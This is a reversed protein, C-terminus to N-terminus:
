RALAFLWAAATTAIALLAGVAQLEKRQRLSPRIFELLRGLVMGFVFGGFHVVVDSAPNSGTLVFLMIGASLTAVLPKWGPQHRVAELGGSITLVGLAALVMGSAGLSQYGAGYIMLAAGNALAAACWPAFLGLGAGYRAMCLGVLLTGTVLNSALHGVDHHLTIATFLRWWEGQRVSQALVGAETMRSGPLTTLFHIFILFAAWGVCAWNFSLHVVPLENRLGWGRNEVHYLKLVRLARGCQVADVELAVVESVDDEIVTSEIGQSLM